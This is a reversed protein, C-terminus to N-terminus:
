MKEPASIGLLNLTKGITAKAIAALALAGENASDNEIVRVDRYFQSFASALAYAYPPLRHVQCDEATAEIVEFFRMLAVALGKASPVNLVDKIGKGDSKVAKAKEIISNIRAHAYQVYFVPNKESREKAREADFEMHTGLAKENYFWRVVDIGYAEVLDRLYVVNGARKSMKTLDEGHKLTMLQSIFVKLESEWRLMEKAAFLRKVHGHHDAGWVDIATTFGRGFKDAHYSIDSLFYSKSGDSRLVVRDEDDGYESTKLWWAGEKEYALEKMKLAAFTRDNLLSARLREDESYWEDFRIGLKKEVFARTDEQVLKSLQFGVEGPDKANTSLKQIKEKLSETLYNEGEGLATKGLEKIQNSERSDNIYYERTVEAGSFALINALTDGYFAGRGHGIHLEGTPNASIFEVNVKEGKKFDFGRDLAGEILSLERTLAEDTLFFNLFGPGAVEIREVIEKLEPAIAQVIAEALDRPAKGLDKAAALAVNTTLHGKAESESFLVEPVVGPVVKGIADIIARKIM